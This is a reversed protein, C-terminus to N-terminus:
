YGKIQPSGSEFWQVVKFPVCLCAALACLRSRSMPALFARLTKMGFCLNEDLTFLQLFTQQGQGVAVTWTFCLGSKSGGKGQKSAWSYLLLLPQQSLLSGWARERERRAFASPVSDMYTQQRRYGYTKRKVRGEMIHKRWIGRGM